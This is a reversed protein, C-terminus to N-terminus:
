KCKITLPNVSDNDRITEILSWAFWYPVSIPFFIISLVVIAIKIMM